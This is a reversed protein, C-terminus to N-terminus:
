KDKYSMLRPEVSEGNRLGTGSENPHLTPTGIQEIAFSAAVSGYAAARNLGNSSLDSDLLGICFGGLFANGAGTPDVIRTIMSSHPQHYADTTSSSQSTTLRAGFEGMRVVVAKLKTPSEPNLLGSCQRDLEDIDPRGNITIKRGLLNQLEELNPSVM